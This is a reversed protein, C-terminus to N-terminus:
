RVTRAFRPITATLITVIAKAMSWVRQMRGPKAPAVPKLLRTNIAASTPLAPAPKAQSTGSSIYALVLSANTLPDNNAVGNSRVQRVTTLRDLKDYVFAEKWDAGNTTDARESLSGNKDWRFNWKQLSGNIGTTIAALRGTNEEFARDSVLNSSNHYRERRVQMLFSSNTM